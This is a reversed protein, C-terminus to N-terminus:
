SCSGSKEQDRLESKLGSNNDFLWLETVSQVTGFYVKPNYKEVGHNVDICFSYRTYNSFNLASVVELRSNPNSGLYRQLICDAYNKDNWTSFSHTGRSVFSQRANVSQM